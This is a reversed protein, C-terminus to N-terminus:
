YDHVHLARLMPRKQVPNLKGLIGSTAACLFDAQRMQHERPAVAPVAGYAPFSSTFKTYDALVATRRAMFAYILWEAKGSGGEM